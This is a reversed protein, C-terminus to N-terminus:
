PISNASQECASKAPAQAQAPLAAALKTCFSLYATKYKAKDGSAAADAVKQCETSLEARKSSDITPNNNIAAECGQKAAQAAPSNTSGGSSGSSSSSTSTSGGASGSSPAPTSKSSSSSSSGCGAVVVGGAVIVMLVVILRTRM